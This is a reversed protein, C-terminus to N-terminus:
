FIVETINSNKKKLCLCTASAFDIAVEELLHGAKKDLYKCCIEKAALKELNKDKSHSTEKATQIEDAIMDKKQFSFPVNTFVFNIGINLEM